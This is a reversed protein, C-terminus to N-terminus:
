HHEHNEVLHVEFNLLLDNAGTFKNYNTNNWDLSTIKDKVGNNLHRMIYQWTSKNSPKLIKIYAKVGVQDDGYTFSVAESPTGLLFAQHTSARTLFSQQSERGLFDTSKLDMQYTHGVALDVHAGIEPALQTGTFKVIQPDEDTDIIYQTQGDVINEEVPTFILTATSLEEQDIELIPEDKSCSTLFLVSLLFLINKM